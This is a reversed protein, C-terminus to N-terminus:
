EGRDAIGRKRRRQRRLSKRLVSELPEGAAKLRQQLLTVIAAEEPGLRSLSQKMESEAAGQLAKVLTGDLYSEFVVPHVYCKKCVSPTNGLRKAVHEIARVITRTTRSKSSLGDFERLAIAALVTGTWTRFDKATFDKGTLERLYDNIDGSTVDRVVGDGNVYQFLDQGPLDRCQKVIRALRPHHIDIAHQKGGKGRFRLEIRSGNTRAHRDQLTSLGYSGNDAAYKENGVRISSLELLHVVSALVKERGLGPKRMQRGVHRRIRPLARGFAIMRNYKTDDRHARWEPHYRYQKRDRL